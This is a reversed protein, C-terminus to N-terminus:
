AIQSSVALALDNKSSIVTIKRADPGLKEMTRAFLNFDVDPAAMVVSAIRAMAADGGSTRLMRLTELTLLTGMSHAVIHIRGGSPSNALALLLDEFADRSWM